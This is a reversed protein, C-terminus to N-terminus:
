STAWLDKSYRSATDIVKDDIPFDIHTGGDIYLTQGTVWTSADSALYIVAAAIDEPTGLRKIALARTKLREPMMDFFGKSREHLIGGPGICNVRINDPAWEWALVRTLNVVGAKAASYAAQKSVGIYAVNSAINVINGSEQKMMVKAVARSCLLVSGLNLRIVAEWESDSIDVTRAIHTGGANNVLIDIRGFEQVTRDVLSDVEQTKTVDTTVALAKRGLARVDSATAELEHLGACIVHAGAQAFGLSIGRGIGTGAGTVIAVRDALSFKDLIMDGERTEVRIGKVM